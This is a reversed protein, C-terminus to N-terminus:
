SRLQCVQAFLQVQKRRQIIPNIDSVHMRRLSRARVIQRRELIKLQIKRMLM